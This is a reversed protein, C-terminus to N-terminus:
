SLGKSDQDQHCLANVVDHSRRVFNEYSFYDLGGPAVRPCHIAGLVARKLDEPDDPDVVYGLDGERVAERSGDLKSAVVPVGCAM